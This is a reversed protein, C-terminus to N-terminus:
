GGRFSAICPGAQLLHDMGVVWPHRKFNAILELDAKRLAKQVLVIQAFIEDPCEHVHADFLSPIKKLVDSIM